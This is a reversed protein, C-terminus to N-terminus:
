AQNHLKKYPIVATATRWSHHRNTFLIIIQTIPVSYKRRSLQPLYYADHDIASVDFPEQFCFYVITINYNSRVIYVCAYFALMQFIAMWSNTISIIWLIFYWALFISNTRWVPDLFYLDRIKEQKVCFSLHYTGNFFQTVDCKSVIYRFTVDCVM